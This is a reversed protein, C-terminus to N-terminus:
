IAFNASLSMSFEVVRAEGTGKLEAKKLQINTFFQGIQENRIDQISGSPTLEVKSTEGKRGSEVLRGMGQPTWVINNMAKMYEALDDNSIASGDIRMAGGSEELKAIWVNKPISTAMADLMKVPGTRGRKLTDLVKLKDELAKNEKEYNQVEGIIRNLDAIEKETRQVELREREEQQSTQSYWWWNGGIGLALAVAFLFVQKQGSERKKAAKVPLLNIRIM